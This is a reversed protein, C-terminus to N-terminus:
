WHGLTQVTNFIYFVVPGFEFKFGTCVGRRPPACLIFELM